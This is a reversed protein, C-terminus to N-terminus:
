VCCVSIQGLSTDGQGLYAEVSIIQSRSLDTTELKEYSFINVLLFSTCRGM